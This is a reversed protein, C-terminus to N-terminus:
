SDLKGYRAVSAGNRELIQAFDAVGCYAFSLFLSRHTDSDIKGDSHATLEETVLLFQHTLSIISNQWEALMPQCCQLFLGYDRRDSSLKPSIQSTIRYTASERWTSPGAICSRLDKLMDSRHSPNFVAAWQGVYYFSSLNDVASQVYTKPSRLSKRLGYSMFEPTGPVLAM